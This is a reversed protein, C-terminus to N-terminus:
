KTDTPSEDVAKVRRKRKIAYCLLSAGILLVIGWLIFDLVDIPGLWKAKVMTGIVMFGMLSLIVGFMEPETVEKKEWFEKMEAQEQEKTMKAM